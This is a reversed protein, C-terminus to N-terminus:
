SLVIQPSIYLEGAGIGAKRVEIEISIPGEEGPVGSTDLELKYFNASAPEGTWDGAGLASTALTTGAALPDMFPSGSAASATSGILRPTVQTTGDPYVFSASIDTDTLSLATSDTVLNITVKDTSTSSLDVYQGFLEFRFPKIAGCDTATLVEISSKASGGFWAEDGTVYCSDNNRAMGNGDMVLFRHLAGGTSDDCGLLSVRFKESVMDAFSPFTLSAHLQCRVLTIELQDLSSATTSGVLAGSQSSLDVGVFRMKAGGNNSDVSNLLETLGSGSISGGLMELYSGRGMYSLDNGVNQCVIDVNRLLVSPGDPGNYICYDGSGNGITLTLDQFMLSTPGGSIAITNDEGELSVGFVADRYKFNWDKTSTLAEYAGPLYEDIATADVSYINVGADGIAGSGNVYVEDYALTTETHSHNHAIYIFDGDVPGTPNGLCAYLSAYVNGATLSSMAGTQRTAYTTETAGTNTGHASSVYFHRVAM